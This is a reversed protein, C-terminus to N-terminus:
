SVRTINVKSLGAQDKIVNCEKTAHLSVYSMGCTDIELMETVTFKNIYSMGCSNISLEQLKGNGLVSSQGSANIQLSEGDGDVFIETRGSCNFKCNTALPIHINVSNICSLNLSKLCPHTLDLQSWKISIKGKHMTKSEQSSYIRPETRNV